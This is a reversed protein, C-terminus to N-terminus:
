FDDPVYGDTVRLQRQLDRTSADPEGAPGIESTMAEGPRGAIGKAAHLAEFDTESYGDTVMIQQELWESQDAMASFGVGSLALVVGTLAVSIKLKPFM